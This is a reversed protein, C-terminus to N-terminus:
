VLFIYSMKTFIESNCKLGIVETCSHLCSDSFLITNNIYPKKLNVTLQEEYIKFQLIKDYM